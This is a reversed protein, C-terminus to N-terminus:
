RQVEIGNKVRKITLTDQAALRSAMAPPRMSFLLQRIGNLERVVAAGRDGIAMAFRGETLAKVSGDPMGLCVTGISSVWVPLPVNPITPDDFYSGSVITKSGPVASANYAIVNNFGSPDNGPLFYTRGGEVAVFLGPSQAAPSTAALMVIKGAYPIYNREPSYLGYHLPESWCLFNEHVVFLRGCTFVADTGPPLPSLLQTVLPRGLAGRYLQASTANAPVAAAWREDTGNPETLYINITAVDAPAAPFASLAIGGGEPVDVTTSLTAASEEGDARAFTIALQYAGADMGGVATAALMPQGAPTPVGWSVASDDLTSVRWARAADSVYVYQNVSEYVVDAGLQVGTTIPTLTSPPVFRYLTDGAVVLAYHGDSWGSRAQALSVEHASGYRRRVKGGPYFDVNVASRCAAPPVSDERAINNAGRPWPGRKVLDRDTPRAM